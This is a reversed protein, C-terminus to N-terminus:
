GRHAPERRKILMWTRIAPLEEEQDEMLVYAILGAMSVTRQYREKLEETSMVVLDDAALSSFSPPPRRQCPAPTSKSAALPIGQAGFCVRGAALHHCAERSRRCM